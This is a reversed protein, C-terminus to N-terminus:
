ENSAETQSQILSSKLEEFTNVRFLATNYNKDALVVVIHYNLTSDLSKYYKTPSDFRRYISVGIYGYERILLHLDDFSNDGLFNKIVEFHGEINSVDGKFSNLVASMSYCGEINSYNENTNFDLVDKHKSWWARNAYNVM